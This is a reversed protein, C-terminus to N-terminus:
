FCLWCSVRRCIFIWIISICSSEMFFFLAEIKYVFEFKWLNYKYIFSEFSIKLFIKYKKYFLM